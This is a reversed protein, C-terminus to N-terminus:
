KECVWVFKNMVYDDLCTILSDGREDGSAMVDDLSRLTVVGDEAPQHERVCAGGRLKRRESKIHSCRRGSSAEV